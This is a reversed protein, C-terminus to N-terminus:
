ELATIRNEHDAISLSYDPLSYFRNELDRVRQLLANYDDQSVVIAGTDQGNVFWHSVDGVNRVYPVNIMRNKFMALHNRIDQQFEQAEASILAMSDLTEAMKDMVAAFQPYTDELETVSDILITSNVTCVYKTCIRLSYSTGQGYINDNSVYKTVPNTFTGDAGDVPGTVYIGLPKNEHIVTANGQDDVSEINYFLLIANFYYNPDDLETFTNIDPYAVSASLEVDGNNLLPLPNLVISGQPYNNADYGYVYSNNGTVNVYPFLSTTASLLGTGYINATSQQPVICYIENYNIGDQSNNSYIDIDGIYKIEGLDTVFGAKALTDWIWIWGPEMNSYAAPTWWYGRGNIGDDYEKLFAAANEYNSQLYNGLKEPSSISNELSPNLDMVVYKSPVVRYFANNTREKTLDDAYDGFTYFTGRNTNLKHLLNCKAM